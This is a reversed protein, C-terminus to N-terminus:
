CEDNMKCGRSKFMEIKNQIDNFEFSFSINSFVVFIGNAKQGINPYIKLSINWWLYINVCAERSENISRKRVFEYLAIDFAM